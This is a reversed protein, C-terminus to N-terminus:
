LRRCGAALDLRIDEGGHRAEELLHARRDEVVHGDCGADFCFIKLQASPSRRAAAATGRRRCASAARGRAHLRGDGVLEDEALDERPEAAADLEDEGAARRERASSAANKM